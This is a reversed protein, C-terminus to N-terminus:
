FSLYRPGLLPYSVPWYQALSDPDSLFPSNFPEGQKNRAEFELRLVLLMNANRRTEFQFKSGSFDKLLDVECTELIDSALDNKCFFFDKEEKM